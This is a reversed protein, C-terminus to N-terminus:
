SRHYEPLEPVTQVQRNRGSWIWRQQRKGRRFLGPWWFWAGGSFSGWFYFSRRSAIVRALVLPITGLLARPPWNSPSRSGCRVPKACLVPGIIVYPVLYCGHVCLWHIDLSYGRGVRLGQVSTAGRLYMSKWSRLQVAAASDRQLGPGAIWASSKAFFFLASCVNWYM